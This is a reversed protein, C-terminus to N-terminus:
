AVTATATGYWWSCPQCDNVASYLLAEPQSDV